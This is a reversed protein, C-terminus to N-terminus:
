PQGPHDVRLGRVAVAEDRDDYVLVHAGHRCLVEREDLGSQAQRGELRARAGDMRRRRVDERQWRQSLASGFSHVEGADTLVLSHFRGASVAAVRV